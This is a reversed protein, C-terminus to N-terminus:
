INGHKDWFDNMQLEERILMILRGLHNEGYNPQQKLDVGWFRDGWWNGEQINQKGTEILLTRYPEQNFKSRLCTEMVNLKIEEWDHVLRVQKGERKVDAPSINKNACYAKWQPDDSKASMFAHEVSPYDVGNYHVTVLHFNSLYDHEPSKFHVIM